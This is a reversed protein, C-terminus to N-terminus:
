TSRTWALTEVLFVQNPIACTHISIHKIDGTRLLDRRHGLLVMVVCYLDNSHYSRNSVVHVQLKTIEGDNIQLLLVWNPTCLKMFLIRRIRRIRYIRMPTSAYYLAGITRRHDEYFTSVDLCCMVWIHECHNNSPRNTHLCRCFANHLAGITRRHDEYFTSVDLWCMVWIHECHNNSPRNTHLCGCLANHLAGITRRHAEYFTSVDLWCMVWIHECHNNSPRNTWIIAQRRCPTFTTVLENRLHRANM